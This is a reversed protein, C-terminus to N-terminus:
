VFRNASRDDEVLLVRFHKDNSDLVFKAKGFALPILMLQGLLACSSFHLFLSSNVDMIMNIGVDLNLKLRMSTWSVKKYNPTNRLVVPQLSIRLLNVIDKPHPHLINLAVNHFKCLARPQNPFM